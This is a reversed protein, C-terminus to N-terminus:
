KIKNSPLRPLVPGSLTLSGIVVVSVNLRLETHPQLVFNGTIFMVATPALSLLLHGKVGISIGQGSWELGVDNVYGLRVRSGHGSTINASRVRVGYPLYTLHSASHVHCARISLPSEVRTEQSHCGLYVFKLCDHLLLQGPGM